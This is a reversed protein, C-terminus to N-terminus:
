NEFRAFQVYTSLSCIQSLNLNPVKKKECIIDSRATRYTGTTVVAVHFKKHKHEIVSM